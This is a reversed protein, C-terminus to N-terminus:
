KHFTRYFFELEEPSGDRVLEVIRSGVIFADVSGDFPRADASSKIGFGLAVPVKTHKRIQQAKAIISQRNRISSGTTGTLSLLYVFGEASAAIKELRRSETQLSVFPIWAVGAEHAAAQWDRSEEFPVDPVILAQVRCERCANLFQERGYAWVPNAYTMLGVPVQRPTEKLLRLLSEIKFGAALVESAARQITPGDAVPDSFPVGIEIFDAYRLTLRLVEAFRSTDPYNALLYPFFLPRQQPFNM